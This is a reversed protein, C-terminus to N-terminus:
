GLFLNTLSRCIISLYSVPIHAELSLIAQIGESTKGMWGLAELWHLLHAQLFQYVEENDHTHSGSRHLHQVWYLCSYQVEPPLCKQIRSSEVQAAQYGPAYLECVDKKLTQSMLQICCDALAQHAQKENVWFNPDSCRNKNLLFDRFSPHHLRLARSTDKPIDLIAHLDALGGEMAGAPLTLLKSLSKISLPLYLLVITGLVQKLMSYTDEKDEELDEKHITSKLVKIYVDNLHHEPTRTLTSGELMMSLRRAARHRGEHIFRYATAAWIFLGSANIVLRRLAQEGPWSAGLHWEQGILGMQHELFIFIDHNVIAAEIDHLIFGHHEGASINCFGNRIPVEPRSTILVRLRVKKLSRAEALLRLILRIDNEDECEDLADIIMVYSPYTDNGELKLLPRLVLQRWQDALSQSAIISCATIADWIHREVPPIHVALQIAITTVFKSANGADGGGRSFFFSAALRGQEFYDRAVTHAITSKGTGAM